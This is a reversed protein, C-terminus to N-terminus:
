KAARRMLAVAAVAILVSGVGWGVTVGDLFSQAPNCEPFYRDPLQQSHQLLWEGSGSRSYINRYWVSAASVYAMRYSTSGATDASPQHSYFVDTAASASPWCTGQYLAGAHTAGTLAFTLVFAFAHLLKM